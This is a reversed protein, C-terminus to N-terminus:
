VGGAECSDSEATGFTGGGGGGGGGPLCDQIFGMFYTLGQM